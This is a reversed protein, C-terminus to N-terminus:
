RSGPTTSWWTSGVSSASTDTSRGDTSAPRPQNITTLTQLIETNPQPEGNQYRDVWTRFPTVTINTIKM